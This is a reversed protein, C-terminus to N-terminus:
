EMFVICCEQVMWLMRCEWFCLFCLHIIECHIKCADQTAILLVIGFLCVSMWLMELLLISTNCTSLLRVLKTVMSATISTMLATIYVLM